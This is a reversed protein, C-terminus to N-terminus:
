HSITDSIHEVKSKRGHVYPVTFSPLFRNHVLVVLYFLFTYRVKRIARGDNSLKLNAQVRNRGGRALFYFTYTQFHMFEQMSIQYCLSIALYAAIPLPYFNLGFIQYIKYKKIYFGEKM